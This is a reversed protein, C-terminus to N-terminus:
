KEFNDAVYRNLLMVGYGTAGKAALPKDKKCHTVGAIDLHAWKTDPKVFRKLFTAAIISGAERGKSGVNQIDAVDSLIQEDFLEDMPMRWLKEGTEEAAKELNEALTDDNSFLGAYDSGLSVIIAGTLTALDILVQPKFREQAYWMADGLILRGEADTNVVEVTLGSLSKVVDGPRQATGSPMNEVLAMIAAANVKAKRMALAQMTGLAVAAGAMDDKMEEMGTAPKLSIGGSDFCVGKGVFVVPVDKSAAGKWQVVALRPPNASGQAVGLMMDFGKAKLQAQDYIEVVLGYKQLEEVRKSFNVPTVVNAPENVLDRATYVGKAVAILPEYANQASQANATLIYLEELTVPKKQITKHKVFRYSALKAGFAVYPAPLDDVAFDATKEGCTLLAGVAAAGVKQATLDNMESKKGLGVCVLRKVSLKDPAVVIFLDGAKGTFDEIKLAKTLAGKMLLDIKKATKSLTLEDYVGVILAGDSPIETKKFLIKM